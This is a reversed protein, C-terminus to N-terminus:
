LTIGNPDLKDSEVKERMWAPAPHVSHGLKGMNIILWVFFLSISM